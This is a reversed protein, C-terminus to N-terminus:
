REPRPGAGRRRRLGTTVQKQSYRPGTVLDFAAFGFTLFSSSLILDLSPSRPALDAGRSLRRRGRAGSLPLIFIVHGNETEVKSGIM